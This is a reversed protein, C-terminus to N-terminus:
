IIRKSKGAYTDTTKHCAVCLTRGNDIAFRLEPYHRFPKIHDANLEVGRQKCWICTYNDREFVAKRWLRYEFSTRILDLEHTLGKRPRALKLSASLNQRHQLTFRRGRRTKSMKEKSEKPIERGKWHSYPHSKHWISMKKRSEETHKIGKRTSLRRSSKSMKLKTESSHKEGKKM